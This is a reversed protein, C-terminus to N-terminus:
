VYMYVEAEFDMVMVGFHGPIASLFAWAHTHLREVSAQPPM